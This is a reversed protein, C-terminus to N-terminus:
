GGPGQGGAVTAIGASLLNCARTRHWWVSACPSAANGLPGRVQLPARRATNDEVVAIVGLNRGNEDRIRIAARLLIRPVKDGRASLKFEAGGTRQGLLAGDVLARASERDPPSVLERLLDKGAVEERTYGTMQSCRLNWETVLGDKDIAFVPASATEILGRLSHGAHSTEPKVAQEESRLLQPTGAAANEPPTMDVPQATAAVGAAGSSGQRVSSVKPLKKAPGGDADAQELAEALSQWICGLAGQAGPNWGVVKGSPDITVAPPMRSAFIDNSVGERDRKSKGTGQERLGGTQGDSFGASAGATVLRLVGLIGGQSNSESRLIAQSVGGTATFVVLDIDCSGTTGNEFRSQLEEVYQQQVVAQLWDKLTGDAGGKAFIRGFGHSLLVRDRHPLAAECTLLLLQSFEQHELLLDVEHFGLLICRAGTGRCAKLLM